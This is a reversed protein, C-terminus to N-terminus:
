WRVTKLLDNLPWNCWLDWWTLVQLVCCTPKFIGAGTPFIWRLGSTVVSVMGLDDLLDDYIVSHFKRDADYHSM